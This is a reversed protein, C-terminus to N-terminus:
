TIGHKIGYFLRRIIGIKKEKKLINFACKEGLLRRSVKKYAQGAQSKKDLIIPKGQNSAKLISKDEPIIGLLPIRLIDIVDEASLMDGTIVREVNYRTLLLHEKIPELNNEARYSKSSLMGLIRDSDRVSSVEPNTIIIAEDAFYFSIIAGQEIGAPSDCIIFDFQMDQLNKLMINISEHTLINKDKTQSAPLIYLKDTYKDKILAQNLSAEGQIVNVLDYVVRRECGMILDLNRLGIDFDIVVTKKKSIALGTAISASSTTKGVGGKGSTISIQSLWTMGDFMQLIEFRNRIPYNGLILGCLYVSLIGSGHFLNTISFIMIGGSLTGSEIELTANIREKLNTNGLLSFVASADTSGIIAGILMGELINLKFIWAAVIGTLGSTIVVGITSLSLAPLLAIRFAQFKTKMGGDLLIIALALNSITYAVSYDNFDIKGLGDIGALMGLILFILLIPIGLRSSFSSLMISSIIKLNSAIIKLDRHAGGIPEAIVTDILNLKKLKSAIIGMSKAAIPAKDVNKWLIAACGEPSIVSYISYQLMNIKDGVGIALAGGSGGEGIVTCIIPVQLTSMERLNKAIAESQGRKEAGIGPYAGPTDIFTIVPLQFQEAMHMLRLAKRYGEPAPMGFNRFIKEKINRGKQHGIIMVPRSNLRGIGGVIAKDDGYVRDGSFEDFNLVEHFMDSQRFLVNNTKQRAYKIATPLDQISDLRNKQLADLAGSYILKEIVRQSLKKSDTRACLDFINKFKGDKKLQKIIDKVSSIGVGKIAGLGYTIINNQARFYYNGVNINPSIIKIGINNCEKALIIIKETNDMDASMAASMFESPYHTKLWLTQYSLLAYATSHSKNFGYGSFKELLDFIKMAFLANIGKKAAGFKFRSRQECMEQQNKKGMARRLIDAEGLSYGALIQAIKIVQEQYLIIGYTSKLIPELLKHQWKSDPYSIKERGHKRNIFNEVMGSQLPGPRFLAVLAIIDEFCDPQLRKILERIGKSELQFVAITQARKLVNFSQTDNLLINSINIPELNNFTRKKNIIKVTWDIITLTRLGLFDFKVLGVKEIDDKDFQTLQTNSKFDYYIPTFNTIKSPAIVIGGAHKGVNKISGELNKAMDIITKIEEDNNYLQQLQKVTILSKKLTIGIDLPILKSIRDVFSYPYGLVRGVDRIVSRATMTGFTIIQAVSKEGYVKIVYDIVLDRKEMCFDIDLDPMSTREPNLFREFILGFQLPDIDTINLAYAVLSGAGSGRGPGVFMSGSLIILGARHQILWTRNITPGLNTYGFRYAKSILMILNHYGINNSALVTIESIEEQLYVIDKLLFDAGVIPKIGLKHATVYFKIFGHINTFDTIAIAPMNLKKARNLIDEIKSLGDVISYDSHVNVGFPEAHNGQALVFPPVDQSVGSCGGIMVHSGITCNQHIATMGGIIVYDEIKVHGGLTVNNALICNNGIICDHAIHVNVMFLNDNGIQTINHGQITGRHITSNERIINRDGIYVRTNEGSYKLDQNVEGISAFQYISNDEGLHTLGNIIVHSKLITRAGIEVQADIFCFPGICVNAHIIANKNIIAIMSAECIVKNDVKAIGNFRAVGRREKIFTVQLIMQDGPQVPKKFRAQDVAAFYYLEGPSLKGSSKFALIGTAQAMAELILVGPFIPNGPSTISRMVMSMGTIVVKDCISIHGNIVSAGGIMCNRGISSSGAMIVGGAIATHDGISVNHAIQCQNDIVVGNGIYTDDLSGRDITTLSGIEINNGLVVRGLHPIKVWIGHDNAYGFGDSGIISGSHLTCYTGVVTRHHITINDWLRTYSGILSQQGIFCGSGITVNDGLKVGSEIVSNHGISINKGYLANKSIISNKSIGYNQNPTTNMIQAAKAYALHPNKAVLAHQKCFPLDKKSIIIASAKCLSLKSRFRSHSLFSIQGSQANEKEFAIQQVIKKIQMVIKNQEEHQRQMQDHEFSKAKNSFNERQATLAEELANRANTDMNKANIKLIEIKANIDKQILDIETARDQFEIELKKAALAQQPSKQFINVSNNFCNLGSNCNYNVVKPGVTNHYFGRITEFGGTYFKDYFPIQKNKLGHTYGLYTRIMWVIHHNNSAEQVNNVVKTESLVKIQMVIGNREIDITLIKNPNKRLIHSLLYWSNKIEINNIKIIKDNKQLGSKMAPSNLEISEICTNINPILPVIGFDMIPDDYNLNSKINKLKIEKEITIFNNPHVLKITISNQKFSEYINNWDSVAINNIKKIEMNASIGLQDAESNPIVDQVIIKYAPMRHITHNLSYLFLEMLDSVEKKPRKWNESSFAYLTLANFRHKIAFNVARKASELGAKHGFIRMKGRKNAWRGNGDMIIAIHRPQNITNHMAHIMSQPHLLVEIQKSNAQFLLCAAIYELGKNMMTASDVSIKKGMSWNPHTYAQKSTVKYLNDLPIKRFPGGSGTLIISSIKCKELLSSDGLKNQMNSPLSQFIANHESDIPCLFTNYKKIQKMFFNGYSVLIEKNALLIKKGSKIAAFIFSAGSLGVTAAVLTDIDESSCLQCADYPGFLVSTKCSYSLLSNRLLKASSKNITCAYNPQYKLCQRIMLNINNGYAILAYFAEKIAIKEYEADIVFLADPLGGMNKIGGLSNELKSLTRTRILAERKTLKEFTGDKSQIELDKLYRISQRVTKWNTLMGGLWRHNVFFQNCDKAFKKISKSAPRKTGVFLIKGSRRSIKALESMAQNIM